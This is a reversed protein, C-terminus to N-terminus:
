TDGYVRWADTGTKRIVYSKNIKMVFSTVGTASGELTLSNTAPGTITRATGDCRLLICTGIAHAVSANTPITTNATIPVEKGAAALNLTNATGADILGIDAPGTAGTPGTTGTAGTIGIPGTPGQIGQIGQIGTAGTPGTSGTAGPNGQIGQPGTPGQDGTDGTSGQPGSAGTAGAPGIDGQDGKLGQIGQPGQLGRPGVDIEVVEPKSREEVVAGAPQTIVIPSSDCGDPIIVVEKTVEVVTCTM